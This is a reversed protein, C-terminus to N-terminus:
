DGPELLSLTAGLPMLKPVQEADLFDLILRNTLEPKEMPLGHSTGPVVELQVDPLARQLEAIHEISVIDDDGALVLTPATLASLDDIKIGTDSVWMSKMKDLVTGFHDPCEPSVAAYIQEYMPPRTERTLNSALASVGPRAGELTVYQGILVLKHVFDPRRLAVSLGVRAGDSWGVLHASATGMADLFAITDQAMNDYTIPGDVDPTRGHGRRDPVYVRYQAALAPAQADWTEATCLGGHLV